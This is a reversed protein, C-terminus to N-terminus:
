VFETIHANWWNKIQKNGKTTQSLIANPNRTSFM